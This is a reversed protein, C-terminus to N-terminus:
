FHYNLKACTLAFEIVLLVPFYGGKHAPHCDTHGLSAPFHQSVDWHTTVGPKTGDSYVLPHAKPDVAHWAAMMQATAHLQKARGYWEAKAQAITIHGAALLGPIPSVQEVGVSRENVGGCQWFIANGLNYAWAMNGELDNLGHIGYDISALYNENGVIDSWGVIDPSVTEHCVFMDKPNTGHVEPLMKNHINSYDIRPM